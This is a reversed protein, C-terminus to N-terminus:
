QRGETRQLERPPVPSRAPASSRTLLVLSGLGGALLSGLLVGIKAIAALESDPFAQDAMLLAVTDGVGCLAAAGPVSDPNCGDPAIALRAKIALWSALMVGFPKGVVLGLIVGLLVRLAGPHSVNISLPVGVASFAFLPLM